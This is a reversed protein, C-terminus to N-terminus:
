IIGSYRLSFREAIKKYYVTDKSESTIYFDNNNIRSKKNRTVGEALRMVQRSVGSRSDITRIADPFLSELHKDIFLFHTCGLVVHDVKKEIFFDAAPKLISLIEDKQADLFRSEVFSVIGPDAYKFIECGGAYQSILNDTYHDSVTKNTAFLGIRKNESVSAAPKVAPVVGVFPIKYKERLYPLTVVTATNCAIVIIDPDTKEIFRSVASLVIKRIEEGSKIGYPFNANDALYVYHFDPSISRLNVLYPIGGIGSDFFAITKSM